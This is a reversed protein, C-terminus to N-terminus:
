FSLHLYESVFVQMIKNLNDITDPDLYEENDDM